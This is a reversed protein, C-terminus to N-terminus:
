FPLFKPIAVQINLIGVYCILKEYLRFKNLIKIASSSDQMYLFWAEFRM